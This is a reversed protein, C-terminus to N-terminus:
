GSKTGQIAEGVGRPLALDSPFLVESPPGSDSADDQTAGFIRVHRRQHNAVVDHNRWQRENPLQRVRVPLTMILAELYAAEMIVPRWM